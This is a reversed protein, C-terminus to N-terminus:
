TVALYNILPNAYKRILLKKVEYPKGETTKEIYAEFEEKKEKSYRDSFQSLGYLTDHAIYNNEFLKYAKYISTNIMETLLTTKENINSYEKLENLEKEMVNGVSLHIHGKWGTMGSFINQLDEEPRKQYKHGQMNSFLERIKYRDCPDYEYSISVPRMKLERFGGEFSKESTLNLMKLLGQQTQDNGDKSRGEKQALWISSGGSTIKDRIYTSLTLAHGYTERPGASRVVTFNKNLKTLDYVIDSTLLNDGIATECTQLGEDHLIINLIASDLIIDRHNAIFLCHEENVLEKIGTFTIESSTKEVLQKVYPHAIKTQFDYITKIHDLKELWAQINEIQGNLSLVANFSSSEKLRAMVDPVDKDTYPAIKSLDITEDM